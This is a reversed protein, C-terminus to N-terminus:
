LNKEFFATLREFFVKRAGPDHFADEREPFLLIDAYKGKKLLEDLLRYANEPKVRVNRTAVALLLPGNLFKANDLPSSALWGDQNRVPDELYRETFVPDVLHWDTVPSEAFGAKFWIPRDLMGRLALYGGYGWGCIGVRKSDVWPQRVLYQAVDRIDAMETAGFRLHIPEEFLHGRGSTGRTDVSAVIFGSQAMLSSWLTRDGDWSDRVLQEGPGGGAFLIVPYRRNIDFAPPKRIWGNLREGMHTRFEVFEFSGPLSRPAERGQNVELTSVEDGNARCIRAIPVSEHDSSIDIFLMKDPSFAISHTGRRKSVLQRQTGKLSVAYLRRELPGDETGTFYVMGRTEDVSDISSVEWEGRTLEAKMNGAIDYLYLHRFGSRESSWIFEDSKNLLYLNPVSNIWYTDKETLIPSCKASERRCLLLQLSKQDRGLVEVMARQNDKLWEVRTVYHEEKFGLDVGHANGGYVDSIWLKVEPIVISRGPLDSAGEGSSMIGHKIGENPQDRTELWAIATSDPSWWYASGMCLEHSYLWDPEGKRVGESATSTLQRVKGSEVECLWISHNRIFSLTKGDPSIEVRSISDRSNLLDTVSRTAIGLRAIKWESILYLIKGDRSWLLTRLRGPDDKPVSKPADPNHLVDAVESGSLLLSAVGKAADYLWIEQASKRTALGGGIAQDPQVTRMFAISSSNPSWVFGSPMAAIKEPLRVIEDVQLPLPAMEQSCVPHVWSGFVVLIFSSLIYPIRGVMADTKM